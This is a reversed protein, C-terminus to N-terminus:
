RQKVKLKIANVLKDPEVAFKKFEDFNKDTIGIQFEIGGRHQHSRLPHDKVEKDTLVWYYIKDIWVGVFVFIDVIDLKLQQFNMWYPEDSEISLAKHELGGRIKTNIARSAKVEVKTIKKGNELYTIYKGDKQGNLYKCESKKKGSSYYETFMGNKYGNKFEGLKKNTKEAVLIGTFPSDAFYAIAGAVDQNIRDTVKIIHYGYSTKFPKQIVGIKGNFCADEFSPDGVNEGVPLDLNGGQYKSEDDSKEKAVSAFDAGKILQTYIDNIKKFDAKDDNSARVSILSVKVYENKLVVKDTRYNIERPYAPLLDKQAFCSSIFLISIFITILIKM